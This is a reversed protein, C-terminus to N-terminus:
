LGDKALFASTLCEKGSLVIFMALAPSFGVTMMYVCLEYPEAEGGDGPGSLVLNPFGQFKHHHSGVGPAELAPILFAPGSPVVPLQSTFLFPCHAPFTSSAFM